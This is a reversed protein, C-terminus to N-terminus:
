TFSSPRLFACSACFVPRDRGAAEPRTLIEGVRERRSGGFRERRTLPGPRCAKPGTGEGPSWRGPLNMLFAKHRVNGRWGGDEM